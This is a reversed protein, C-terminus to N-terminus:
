VHKSERKRKFFKMQVFMVVRSITITYMRIRANKKPNKMKAQVIYTHPSFFFFFFFPLIYEIKKKREKGIYKHTLQLSSLMTKYHKFFFHVPFDTEKNCFFVSSFNLIFIHFHFRFLHEYTHTYVRFFIVCSDPQQFYAIINRTLQVIKKEGM